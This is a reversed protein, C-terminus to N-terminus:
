LISYIKHSPLPHVLSFKSFYNTPTQFFFPTENLDDQSWPLDTFCRGDLLDKFVAGAGTM